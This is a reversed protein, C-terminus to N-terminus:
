ADIEGSLADRLMLGLVQRAPVEMFEDMWGALAVVLCLVHQRRPFSQRGHRAHNGRGGFVRHLLFTSFGESRSLQKFIPEVSKAERKNPANLLRRQKDVIGEEEGTRWFTGEIASLLPPLADDFEGQEAHSLGHTLDKRQLDTIYPANDLASILTHTYVGDTVVKELAEDLAEEMEVLQMGDLLDLEEEPLLRILFWFQTEKWRKTVREVVALQHDELERIVLPAPVISAAIKELVSGMHQAKGALEIMGAPLEARSFGAQAIRADVDAISRAIGASVAVEAPSVMQNLRMAGLGATIGEITSAVGMGEPTMKAMQVEIRQIDENVRELSPLSAGLLQDRGLALRMDGLTHQEYPLAPGITALAHARAPPPRGIAGGAAQVCASLGTATDMSGFTESRATIATSLLDVRREHQGLIDSALDQVSRTDSAGVSRMVTDTIDRSILRANEQIEQLSAGIGAAGLGAVSRQWYPTREHNSPGIPMTHITPWIGSILTIEVEV